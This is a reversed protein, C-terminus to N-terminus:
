RIEDERFKEIDKLTINIPSTGFLGLLHEIRKKKILEKLSLNILDKKTKVSTLKKAEELLKEDIDVTARM